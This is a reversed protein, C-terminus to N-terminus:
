PIKAIIPITRWIAPAFVKRLAYARNPEDLVINRAPARSTRLVRIAVSCVPLTGAAGRMVAVHHRVGRYRQRRVSTEALCSPPAPPVAVSRSQALLAIDVTVFPSICVIEM